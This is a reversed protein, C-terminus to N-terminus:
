PCVDPVSGGIFTNHWLRWPTQFRVWRSNRMDFSKKKNNLMVFSILVAESFCLSSGLNSELNQSKRHQGKCILYVTNQM